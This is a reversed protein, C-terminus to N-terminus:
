LKVRIGVYAMAGEVPGYVLTPEFLSSWPTSANIIPNKQKFNTLNEGGLYIDFYRFFRTVQASMQEFAKYHGLDGPLRGGGNLQMTFDFQWLELPQLKYSMCLLAKYRSTLPKTMLVGGYTCKVDNFRYALMIDLGELPVYNAGVQFVHSRSKGLLDHIWIRSADSDYDIIAQNTFTTYYYEANLKLIREGLPILFATTAGYNWAEEQGLNEVFLQRGSALLNHNEALAHVTRYGKGASLRTSFWSVPQYKVHARPTVFNGYLSSNDWRVGAMATLKTGLTYTYQVYAGPVTEKEVDKILPNVEGGMQYAQKLYDHSISSGISIANNGFTAEYMLQAYLNKQNVDYGKYGRAGYMAEQKHLSANALFAVNMQKEPNLIFAHKMYGEYRDTNIEIKYLPMDHQIMTHETQGSNRAEKLFSVGAHMIYSDSKLKWRNSFNGQQVKPMDVFGDHNGDHNSLRNEYHALVNTSLTNSLHFNADANAEIRGQIDGYLNIHVKKEDDPKLYEVDIQGTISEYGNKVSAAGKSVSIGKMWTGSVYGLAFPTAAGRFGPMNETLMQVYTGSLGLLKIQKAGTAADNYNVDVSPNTTFSEGLNCCAARFLEKQTIYVGNTAGSLRRLSASSTVVVEDLGASLSSDPLAVEQAGCFVSSLGGAVLLLLKKM